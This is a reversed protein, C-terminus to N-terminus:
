EGTYGFVIQAKCNKNWDKNWGEQIEEVEFNITQQKSWKDFTRERLEEVSKWIVIKSLSKCNEFAGGEIRKINKSM